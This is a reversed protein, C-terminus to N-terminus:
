ARVLQHVYVIAPYTSLFAWVFTNLGMLVAAGVHFGVGWALFAWAYPAPLLFVLGVGFAVEVAVVSRTLFRGLGDHRRLAAAAGATGYTATDLILALADGRRWVPSVVKAVGAVGYALCAQAAVFVLSATRLFDDSLPGFGVFMAVLVVAAMQDSGDKGRDFRVAVLLTTAVVVVFSVDLLASDAPAAVLAVVAALRTVLVATFGRDLVAGVHAGLRRTGAPRRRVLSWAFLRGPTFQDRLALLELTSVVAGVSWILVVARFTEDATPTM